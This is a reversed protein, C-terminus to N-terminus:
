IKEWGTIHTFNVLNATNLSYFRGQIKIYEYAVPTTRPSSFFIRVQTRDPLDLLESKYNRKFDEATVGAEKLARVLDKKSFVGNLSAGFDGWITLSVAPDASSGVSERIDLTKGYRSKIEM